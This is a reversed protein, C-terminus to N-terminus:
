QFKSVFAFVENKSAANTPVLHGGAHRFVVPDAFADALAMMREPSIVTDADGILHMSPTKIKSQFLADTAEQSQPKFGAAIIAFRFAPHAFDGPILEPILTRNELLESLIAALCAGQSFGLVGDFPGQKILVDKISEISEQFGQYYGDPTNPHNSMPQWWGFPKLEENISSGEHALPEAAAIRHVETTYELDLVLHPATVYVLDAVKELKKRLVATKKRFVTSNQIMGHLCLLKLKNTGSM